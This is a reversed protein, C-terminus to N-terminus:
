SKSPEKQKAHKRIITLVEMAHQTLHVGGSKLQNNTAKVIENTADLIWDGTTHPETM